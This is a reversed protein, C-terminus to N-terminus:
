PKGTKDPKGKVKDGMYLDRFYARTCTWDEGCFDKHYALVVGDDLGYKAKLQLAIQYDKDTYGASLTQVQERLAKRVCGWDSECKGEFLNMVDGFEATFQEALREATGQNKEEGQTAQKEERVTLAEEQLSKKYEQVGDILIQAASMEDTALNYAQKLDGWSDASSRAVAIEEWEVEMRDAFSAAHKLESLTLGAVLYVDLESPDAGLENALKYFQGLEGPNADEAIRALVETFDAEFRTTSRVAVRVDGLTYEESMVLGMLEVLDHDALLDAFRDLQLLAGWGSQNLKWDMIDEWSLVEMSEALHYAKWMLGFGLNNEESENDFIKYIDECTYLDESQAPFLYKNVGDSIKQAMPHCADEPDAVVVPMTDSSTFGCGDKVLVQPYYKDVETYDYTATEGTEGDFTGDGDLDWEYTYDLTGGTVATTFVVTGPDGKVFLPPFPSSSLVVEPGELTLLGTMADELIGPDTEGVRVTWEYVGQDPYTHIITQSPHEVVIIESSDGDGFIMVFLYSESVDTWQITFQVEHDGEGCTTVPVVSTIELPDPVPTPTPDSGGQAYVISTGALSSFLIVVTLLFRLKTRSSKYM